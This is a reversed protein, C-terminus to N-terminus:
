ASFTAFFTLFISAFDIQTLYSPPSSPLSASQRPPVAHEEFDKRRRYEALALSFRPASNTQIRGHM